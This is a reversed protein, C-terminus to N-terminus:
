AIVIPEPSDVEFRPGVTGVQRVCVNLRLVTRVCLPNTKRTKLHCRQCEAKQEADNSENVNKFALSLFVEILESSCNMLSIHCWPGRCSFLDGGGVVALSRADAQFGAGFCCSSMLASGSAM